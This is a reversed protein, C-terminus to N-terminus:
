PRAKGADGVADADRLHADHLRYWLALCRTRVDQPVAPHSYLLSFMAQVKALMDCLAHVAACAHAPVAPAAPDGSM